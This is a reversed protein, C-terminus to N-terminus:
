LLETDVIANQREMIYIMNGHYGTEKRLLFGCKEALHISRVNDQDIICCVPTKLVEDAWALVCKAAEVAYGKGHFAPNFTWGMEPYRLRPEIDRHNEALGINGIYQQTSKDFVAWYGYDFLAWNGTYRLLRQWVREPTQPEGGIFKVIEPDAWMACLDAFDDLRHTRLVLRETMLVPTDLVM